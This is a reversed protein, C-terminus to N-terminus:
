PAWPSWPGYIKSIGMSMNLYILRNANLLQKPKRFRDEFFENKSSTVRSFM